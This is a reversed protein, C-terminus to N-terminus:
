GETRGIAELILVGRQPMLKGNKDPRPVQHSDLFIYVPSYSYQVNYISDLAPKNNTLWEIADGSQVYDVGQVFVGDLQNVSTISVVRSQQLVDITGSGRRVAEAVTLRRDTLVIHDHRSLPTEDPLVSISTTGAPIFGFEADQIDKDTSHVLARWRADMAQEVYVIGDTGGANAKNRAYENHTASNTTKRVAKFWLYREGRKRHRIRWKEVDPYPM